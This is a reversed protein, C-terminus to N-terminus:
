RLCRGTGPETSRCVTLLCDRHRSHPNKQNDDDTDEKEAAAQDKDKDKDKDRAPYADDNKHKRKHHDKDEDPIGFHGGLLSLKNVDINGVINVVTLERAEAVLIALGAINDGQKM